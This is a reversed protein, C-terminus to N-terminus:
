NSVNKIENITDNIVTEHRTFNAEHPPDVPGCPCGPQGCYSEGNLLHAIVHAVQTSPMASRFDGFLLFPGFKDEAALIPRHDPLIHKFSAEQITSDPNINDEAELIPNLARYVETVKTRATAHRGHNLASAATKLLDALEKNTPTPQSRQSRVTDDALQQIQDLAEAMVDPDSNSNAPWNAIRELIEIPDPATSKATLPKRSENASLPTSNHTVLARKLLRQPRQTKKM